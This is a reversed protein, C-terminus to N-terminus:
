IIIRVLLVGVEELLKISSIARTLMMTDPFHKGIDGLGAAGLLAM